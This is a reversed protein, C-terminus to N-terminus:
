RKLSKQSITKINRIKCKKGSVVLDKLKIGDFNRYETQKASSLRVYSVSFKSAIKNAKCESISTKCPTKAM